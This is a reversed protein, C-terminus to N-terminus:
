TDAYSRYTVIRDKIEEIFAMLADQLEDVDKCVRLEDGYLDLQIPTGNEPIYARFLGDQFNKAPIRLKVNLQRGMKAQFGPELDVSIPDGQLGENLREQIANTIEKLSDFSAQYEATVAEDLNFNALWQKFRLQAM